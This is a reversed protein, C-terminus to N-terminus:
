PSRKADHGAALFLRLRLVLIIPPLMQRGSASATWIGGTKFRAFAYGRPPAAAPFHRDLRAGRDPQEHVLGRLTQGSSSSSTTEFGIHGIEPPIKYATLKDTFSVRLIWVLPLLIILSFVTLGAHPLIQGTRYKM